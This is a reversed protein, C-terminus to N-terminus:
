NNWFKSTIILEERKLGEGILKKIVNGIREENGYFSATDIHRYGMKIAAELAGELGEGNATGLGVMPFKSEVM